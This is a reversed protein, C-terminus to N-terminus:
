LWNEVDIERFASFDKDSSLINANHHLAMAALLLDVHSIARGKTRAAESVSGYTRVIRWDVPWIRVHKLVTSLSARAKEPRRLRVIGAEIECLVSWCTALVHGDRHAQSFRDRMRSVPQLTESLHNTDILYRGM